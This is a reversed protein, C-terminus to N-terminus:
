GARTGHITLVGPAPIAASLTGNRSLVVPALTGGTEAETTYSLGYSGPVLGDVALRGARAAKVVVTETGDPNVFAVPAFAHDSTTAGIREADMRVHRFYQALYRGQHSLTVRPPGGPMEELYLVVALSPERGAAWPGIVSYLQWASAEAVVLDEHLHHYTGYLYELMEAHIGFARARARIAPLVPSSHEGDYRHYGLAFLHERVGPESVAADFLPVANQAATTSPLILRVPFGEARLRAAAAAACRGIEAGHWSLTNEPELTIELTDPVADWRDRLHRFAAAVLEAYEAPNKAHNLTGPVRGKDFDVYCLNLFLREGRAALRRRMPVLLKEAYYDIQSFQFRGPEARLPDANDNIKEYFYPKYETYSLKGSRFLSWYDTPNEHGSALHIRLRNIGVTGILADLIPDAHAEWSGDFRNEAKNFELVRASVEWGTMTQFRQGPDVRIRAPEAARVRRAPLGAAAGALLLSRLLTRRHM